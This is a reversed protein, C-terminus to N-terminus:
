ARSLRFAYYALPAIVLSILIPLFAYPVPTALATFVTIVTCVCMLAIKLGILMTRTRRVNDEHAETSAAKDKGGIVGPLYTLITLTLYILAALIPVVLSIARPSFLAIEGSATAPLKPWNIITLVILAVLLAAAIIEMIRYRMKASTNM